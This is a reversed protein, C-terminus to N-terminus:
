FHILFSIRSHAISHPLYRRTTKSCTDMDRVKKVISDSNDTLIKNIISCFVAPEEVNGVNFSLLLNWPEHCLLIAPSSSKEITVCPTMVLQKDNPQELDDDETAHM